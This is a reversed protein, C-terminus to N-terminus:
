TATLDDTIGIVVQPSSTRKPNKAAQGRNLFTAPKQYVVFWTNMLKHLAALDLDGSLLGEDYLKQLLQNKCQNLLIETEEKNTEDCM